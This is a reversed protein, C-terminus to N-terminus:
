NGEVSNLRESGLQQDSERVVHICIMQKKERRDDM